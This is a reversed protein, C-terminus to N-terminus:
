SSGIKPRAKVFAVVDDLDHDAGTLGIPCEDPGAQPGGAWSTRKAFGRIAAPDVVKVVLWHALGSPSQGHVDVIQDWAIHLKGRSATLGEEDIVLFAPRVVLLAAGVVTLVGGILWFPWGWVPITRRLPEVLDLGLGVLLMASGVGLALLGKRVSTGVTIPLAANSM